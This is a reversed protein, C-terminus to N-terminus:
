SLRTARKEQESAEDAEASRYLADTWYLPTARKEKEDAQDAEASRLLANAWYLPVARPKVEAPAASNEASIPLPTAVGLASCFSLIITITSKALM